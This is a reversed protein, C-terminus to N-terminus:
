NHSVSITKSTPGWTLGLSDVVPTKLESIDIKKFTPLGSEGTGMDKKAVTSGTDVGESMRSTAQPVPHKAM